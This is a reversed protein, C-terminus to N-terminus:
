ASRKVSEPAPGGGTHGFRQIVFRGAKQGPLEILNYTIWSLLTVTPLVVAVVTAFRLPAAAGHGYQSIVFM